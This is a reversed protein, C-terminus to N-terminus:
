MKLAKFMIAFIADVVIILCISMVVSRTTQTGISESNSKVRFGCFCGVMAIIWAFAFTKVIGIAYNNISVYSQMRHLFLSYSVDLSTASVLMGGFISAVDAIMTLIPLSILLGIVRPVVLRRMPSIGMTRLADIEEQVKMTGISATIASGTRGAVIVATLLPTVERLLAIGLFNVIYVNAGYTVFQPSMQYTLNVGILFCLMSSILIGKIGASAVTEVIGRMYLSHGKKFVTVFSHCIYGFFTLLELGVYWVHLTRKGLREVSGSNDVNLDADINHPTINTALDWLAQDAAVLKVALCNKGRQTLLEKIKGLFFVGTTDMYKIQSGDISYDVSSFEPIKQLIKEDLMVWSWEGTLILSNQESQFSIAAATSQQKETSNKYM